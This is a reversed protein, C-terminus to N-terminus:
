RLAIEVSPPATNSPRSSILLSAQDMGSEKPTPEPTPHPPATTAAPACASLILVGTLIVLCVKKHFM